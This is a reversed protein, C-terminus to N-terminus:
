LSDVIQMIQKNSLTGNSNLEYQVGNNIWTANGQDNIFLNKGKPTVIQSSDTTAALVGNLTENNWNSIKENIVFKRDDSNSKYALVASGTNADIKQLSFGAPRYSPKSINFGAKNSALKLEAHPILSIALIAIVVVGAIVLGVKSSLQKFSKQDTSEYSNEHSNARAIAHMLLDETTKPQNKLRQVTQKPSVNSQKQNTPVAAFKSVAPHRTSKKASELRSEHISHASLKKEVGGEKVIPLSKNLSSSKTHDPKKVASRMLTKSRQRKHAAAHRAAERAQRIKAQVVTKEIKPGSILQGTTADYVSNNIKLTNKQNM